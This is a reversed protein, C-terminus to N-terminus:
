ALNFPALLEDRIFVLDAPFKKLLETTRYFIDIEIEGKKLWTLVVSQICPGMISARSVKTTDKTAHGKVFHNFCHFSVSGYKGKSCRSDWLKVAAERSEAHLYYKRLMTLKSKTFGCDAIKLDDSFDEISFSVNRLIKRCGSWLDAPQAAFRLCQDTWEDIM